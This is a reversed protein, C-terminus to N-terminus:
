IMLLWKENESPKLPYLFKGKGQIFYYYFLSKTALQQCFVELRKKIKLIDKNSEYDICLQYKKKNQALLYIYVIEIKRFFRCQVNKFFFVKFNDWLTFM